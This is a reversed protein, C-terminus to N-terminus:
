RKLLPGTKAKANKPHTLAGLFIASITAQTRAKDLSSEADEFQHKDDPAPAALPAGAEAGDEDSKVAVVASPESSPESSSESPSESPELLPESTPESTPETPKSTKNPKRNSYRHTKADYNWDRQDETSEIECLINRGYHNRYTWAMVSADAISIVFLAMLVADMIGPGSRLAINHLIVYVTM